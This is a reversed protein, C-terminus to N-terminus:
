KIMTYTLILIPKANNQNMNSGWLIAHTYTKIDDFLPGLQTTFSKKANSSILSQVYKTVDMSYTGTSRDMLGGLPTQTNTAAAYIPDYDKIFQTKQLNYYIGLGYYSSDMSQWNKEVRQWKLEARHLAITSYGKAKVKEIMANFQEKIIDVRTILGVPGSVFCKQAPTITDGIMKYDVGGQTPDAKTFDNKIIQLVTNYPTLNASSNELHAFYQQKYASDPKAPNDKNSYYLLLSLTSMNTTYMAGNQTQTRAKFYLGNHVKHFKKDSFYINSSDHAPDYLKEYFEKPLKQIFMGTSDVKFTAIPPKLTYKSIPFNSYYISDALFNFGEINYVDVFMPIKKDGMRHKFTAHITASDMKVEKYGFYADTEFGLPAFNTVFSADIEGTIKETYRGILMDYTYNSMPVSDLKLIFTNIGVSSDIVTNMQQNPPILNNGYFPDKNVCSYAMVAIIIAAIILTKNRFNTM